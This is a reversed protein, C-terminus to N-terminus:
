NLLDMFDEDQDLGYCEYKKLTSGLSKLVQSQKTLIRKGERGQVGFIGQGM